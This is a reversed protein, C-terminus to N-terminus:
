IKEYMGSGDLDIEKILQKLQDDNLKVNLAKFVSDLERNSITGSGDM